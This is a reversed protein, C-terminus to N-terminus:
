AEKVANKHLLHDYLFTGLPYPLKKKERLRLAITKGMNQGWNELEDEGKGIAKVLDFIMQKDEPPFYKESKHIEFLQLLHKYLFLGAPVNSPLFSGNKFNLQQAKQAISDRTPSIFCGKPIHKLTYGKLIDRQKVALTDAMEKSLYFFYLEEKDQSFKIHKSSVGILESLNQVIENKFGTFINFVM